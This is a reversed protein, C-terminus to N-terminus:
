RPRVALDAPTVPRRKPPAAANFWNLLTALHRAEAWNRVVVAVHDRQVLPVSRGDLRRNLLWRRGEVVRWDTVDVRRAVEPEQALATLGDLVEAPPQYRRPRSGIPREFMADLLPGIAGRIEHANVAPEGSKGTIRSFRFLALRPRVGDGKVKGEYACYGLRLSNCTLWIV